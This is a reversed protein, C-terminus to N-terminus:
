RWRLVKPEARPTPAVPARPFGVVIPLVPRHDDPICLERRFVPEDVAQRALGIACTGLGLGHAALMLNQAALCCDENPPWEAPSACIVILTTADFFVSFGPAEFQEKYKWFPSGPTLGALLLDRSRDSLRQLLARDQVVVFAWPQKNMASPAQVAAALLRRITDAPVPQPLYSRVSRRDYIADVVDVSAPARLASPPEPM